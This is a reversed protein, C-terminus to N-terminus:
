KLIDTEVDKIFEYINLVKEPVLEDFNIREIQGNTLNLQLSVVQYLKNKLHKQRPEIKRILIIDLGDELFINQWKPMKMAGIIKFNNETYVRIAREKKGTLGIKETTIQFNNNKWNYFNNWIELPLIISKRTLYDEFNITALEIFTQEQDNKFLKVFYQYSKNLVEKKGDTTEVIEMQKTVNIYGKQLLQTKQFENLVDYLQVGKTASQVAKVYSQNILTHQQNFYSLLIEGASLGKNYAKFAKTINNINEKWNKELNQMVEKAFKDTLVKEIKNDIEKKIDQKKIEM